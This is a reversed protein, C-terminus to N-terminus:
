EEFGGVRIQTDLLMVPSLYGPRWGSESGQHVLVLEEDVIGVGNECELSVWFFIGLSRQQPHIIGLSPVPNVDAINCDSLTKLFSYLERM